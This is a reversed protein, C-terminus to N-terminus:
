DLNLINSTKMMLQNLYLSYLNSLKIKRCFSTGKKDLLKLVHNESKDLSVQLFRELMFIVHNESLFKLHLNEDFLFQQLVLAMNLKAADKKSHKQVFMIM